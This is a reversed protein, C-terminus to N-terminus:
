SAARQEVGAEGNERYPELRDGAINEHACFRAFDTADMDLDLWWGGDEAPEERLVAGAGYLM